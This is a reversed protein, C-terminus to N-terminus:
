TKYNELDFAFDISHQRTQRTFNIVAIQRRETKL